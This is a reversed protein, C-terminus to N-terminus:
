MYSLHLDHYQQLQDLTGSYNNSILWEMIDRAVLVKQRLQIAENIEELNRITNTLKYIQQISSNSLEEQEQLLNRIMINLLHQIRRIIIHTTVNQPLAGLAKVESPIHRSITAKTYGLAEGIEAYSHGEYYLMCAEQIEQPSMAM